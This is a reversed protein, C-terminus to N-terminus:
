LYRDRWSEGFAEKMVNCEEETLYDVHMGSKLAEHIYAASEEIPNDPNNLIENASFDVTNYMEEGMQRYREKDEDSISDKMQNYLHPNVRQESM